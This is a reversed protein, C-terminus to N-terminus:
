ILEDGNIEMKLEIMAKRIEKAEISDMTPRYPEYHDIKNDILKLVDKLTKLSAEMVLKTMSTDIVDCEYKTQLEKELEKITKM